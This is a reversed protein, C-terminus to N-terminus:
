LVIPHSLALNVEPHYQTLQVSLEGGYVMLGGNYRTRAGVEVVHTGAPMYILDSKPCSMAIGPAGSSYIMGGARHDMADLNSGLEPVLLHRRANNPLLYNSVLIRGDILFRVFGNIHAQPLQCM